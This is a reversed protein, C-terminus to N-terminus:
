KGSKEKENKGVSKKEKTREHKKRRFSGITACEKGKTLGFTGGTKSNMDIPFLPTRNSFETAKSCTSDESFLQKLLSGKKRPSLNEDNIETTGLSDSLISDLDRKSTSTDQIEKRLMALNDFVFKNEEPSCKTRIINMSNDIAAQRLKKLQEQSSPSAFTNISPSPFTKPSDSMSSNDSDHLMPLWVNQLVSYRKGFPNRHVISAFQCALCPNNEKNWFEQKHCSPCSLLSDANPSPILFSCINCFSRVSPKQVDSTVQRPFCRCLFSAQRWMNQAETVSLQEDLLTSSQTKELQFGFTNALYRAAGYICDERTKKHAFSPLCMFLQRFKKISTPNHRLDLLPALVTNEM